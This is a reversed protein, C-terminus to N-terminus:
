GELPCPQHSKDDDGNKSRVFVFEFFLGAGNIATGIFDVEFHVLDTSNVVSDVVSFPVPICTSVAPEVVSDVVSFRDLASNEVALFGDDINGALGVASYEVVSNVVLDVVSNVDSFREAVVWSDGISSNVVSTKVSAPLFDVSNKVSAPLFDGVSFRKSVIWSDGISSDAVSNKVPAALFFGAVSEELLAGLALPTVDDDADDQPWRLFRLM